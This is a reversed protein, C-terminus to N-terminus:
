DFNHNKWYDHISTLTLSYLFSLAWSNISKLQPTLSSEQTDRPSLSIWGTGGLPFWDQNNMPLVSTSASVGISQGGWVFFQSRPFSGQNQSLNFAPPSPSSLPHSPQIADSVWHVPTQPFELLQHYVPLGLMSCEMPNCLSLCSWTVSSFQVSSFCLSLEERVSLIFHSNTGINSTFSAASLVKTLRM